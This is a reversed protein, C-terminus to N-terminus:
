ILKVSSLDASDQKTSHRYSLGSPKSMLGFDKPTKNLDDMRKFEDRLEDTAISVHGYWSRAQETMYIRYLDEYGPRYGFWRGMQMLTDYMISNRLFYTTTLGELTIGRSLSLGGVAIIHRGEPYSRESYDIEKEANKSSNVEIVDIPAISKKLVDQIEKWDFETSSFETEWTEFLGDMYSNKLAEEQSLAYNSFIADRIKTLYGHIM